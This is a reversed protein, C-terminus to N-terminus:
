HFACIYSFEFDVELKEYGYRVVGVVGVVVVVVVLDLMVFNIRSKPYSLIM